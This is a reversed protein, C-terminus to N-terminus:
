ALAISRSSKESISAALALAEDMLRSPPVVRNVLGIAEARRADIKMGTFVMEKARSLGIKRPLRQSGGWGPFSGLTIEPHGFQANESAILIDCAVALELGGGLAYGNIAGIVPKPCDAIRDFVDQGLKMMRWMTEADLGIFEQIDAGAVFAKEGSGTIVMVRVEPNGGLDSVAQDLERLTSFRLANRVEPRQITIVAAHGKM